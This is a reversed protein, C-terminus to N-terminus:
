TIPRELVGEEYLNCTATRDDPVPSSRWNDSMGDDIVAPNFSRITTLRASSTRRMHSSCPDKFYRVREGLKCEDGVVMLPDANLRMTSTPRLSYPWNRATFSSPALRMKLSSPDARLDIQSNEADTLQEPVDMDVTLIFKSEIGLTIPMSIGYERPTPVFLAIRVNSLHPPRM